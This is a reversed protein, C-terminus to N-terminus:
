SNKYEQASRYVASIVTMAIGGFFVTLTKGLNAGLVVSCIVSEVYAIGDYGANASPAFRALATMVLLTIGSIMMTIGADSLAFSLEKRNILLLFVICAIVFAILVFHNFDSTALFFANIESAASKPLDEVDLETEGFAAMIEGAAQDPDGSNMSIGFTEKLVAENERIFGAIDAADLTHLAEGSYLDASFDALVQALWPRFSTEEMLQELLRPKMQEVGFVQRMTEPTVASNLLDTLWELANRQDQFDHSISSVPIDTLDLAELSGTLNDPQTASRANAMFLMAVLSGLFFFCVIVSLVALGPHRRIRNTKKKSPAESADASYDEEYSSSSTVSTEFSLYEDEYDPSTTPAPSKNKNFLAM